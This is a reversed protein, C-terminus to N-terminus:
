ECAVDSQYHDSVSESGNPVEILYNMKRIPLDSSM